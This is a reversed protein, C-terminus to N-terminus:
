MVNFKWETVILEVRSCSTRCVCIRKMTKSRMNSARTGSLGGVFGSIGLEIVIQNQRKERGDVGKRRAAWGSGDSFFREWTMTMVSPDAHSYELENLVRSLRGLTGCSVDVTHHLFILINEANIFTARLHKGSPLLLLSLANIACAPLPHAFFAKRGDDLVSFHFSVRLLRSM